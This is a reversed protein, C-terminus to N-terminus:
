NEGQTSRFHSTDTNWRNCETIVSATCKDQFVTTMSPSQKEPKSKTSM